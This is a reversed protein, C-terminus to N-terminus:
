PQQSDLVENVRTKKVQPEPANPGRRDTEPATNKHKRGRKGKGKEKTADKEARKAWAEELDQYSMVRATGLVKLETAQQVKAENNIAVLFRIHNQQLIGKAFSMQAAKTLKQILRQLRQRITENLFCTTNQQVILNQLSVLDEATVPTKPSQVAGQPLSTEVPRRPGVTVGDAKTTILTPQPKPM